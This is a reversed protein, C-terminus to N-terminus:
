QRLKVINQRMTEAQPYDPHHQLFDELVLAAERQQGRRLHIEALFLQPHSFHGPDLKRARELYKVATDFQGLEFHTMGLQSNALADNPRTLTARANVELAEDLKHLTVLVGGLNVLPEYASPDQKLSQRFRQEALPFRRTQYAITGLNNWATAFQPALEVAHELHKEAGEVDRKELDRQADLYDRLAREPIALQSATVSHRRRDSTPDFEADRLAVTLQIRNRSDALSPGVEITQRAEGRGAQFVAVTYTAPALKKFTFRGSEDTLTSATFPHTAGFLTVSARGEPSIRGALEYVVQAPAAAAVLILLCFTRM